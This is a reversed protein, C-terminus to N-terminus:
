FEPGEWRQRDGYESAVRPWANLGLTELDSLPATLRYRKAPAADQTAAEIRLVKVEAGMTKAVADIAASGEACPQCWKTEFHLLIPKGKFKTPDFTKGDGNTLHLPPAPKGVLSRNTVALDLLHWDVETADEPVIFAFRGDNVPGGPHFRTVTVSAPIEVSFRPPVVETQQRLAVGTKTDIWLTRPRLDAKVGERGATVVEIVKCAFPEGDIELTEDRLVKASVLNQELPESEPTMATLRMISDTPIAADIKAFQNSSERWLLSTHGDSYVTTQGDFPSTGTILFHDPQRAAVSVLIHFGGDIGQGPRALTTEVDM